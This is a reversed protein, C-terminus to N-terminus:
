AKEWLVFTLEKEQKSTAKEINMGVGSALHLAQFEEVSEGKGIAKIRLVVYLM